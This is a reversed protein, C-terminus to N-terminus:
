GTLVEDFTKGLDLNGVLMLDFLLKVVDDLPEVAEGTGSILEIMAHVHEVFAALDRMRVVHPHLFNLSAQLQADYPGHVVCPDGFQLFGNAGHRLEIPVYPIKHAHQLLV